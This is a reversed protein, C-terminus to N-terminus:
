PCTAEEQALINFGDDIIKRLEEISGTLKINEDPRLNLMKEQRNLLDRLYSLMKRKRYVTRCSQAKEEDFGAAISRDYRDNCESIIDWIEEVATVLMSRELPKMVFGDIQLGYQVAEEITLVKGTLIIVPIDSIDSDNRIATLIEWGSVPEMMLDLLIIDPSSTKITEIAKTGDTLIDALHGQARLIKQYIQILTENDDILLVKM